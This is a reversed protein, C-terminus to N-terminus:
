FALVGLDERPLAWQSGDVDRPVGDLERCAGM